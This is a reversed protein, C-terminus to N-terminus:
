FMILTPTPKPKLGNPLVPASSFPWAKRINKKVLEATYYMPTKTSSVYEKIEPIHLQAARYYAPCCSTTM